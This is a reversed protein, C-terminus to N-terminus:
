LRVRTRATFNAGEVPHYSLQSLTANAIRLDPTRDEEVGGCVGMYVEFDATRLASKMTRMAGSPEAQIGLSRAGSQSTQSDIKAVTKDGPTM